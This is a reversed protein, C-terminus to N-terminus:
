AVIVVVFMAITLLALVIYHPVALIWKVLPYWSTLDKQADPYLIDLHVSQEEDTSPYEDRLLSGYATVRAGFRLVVM